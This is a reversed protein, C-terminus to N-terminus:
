KILDYFYHHTCIQSNGMVGPPSLFGESSSDQSRPSSFEGMRDGSRPSLFEGVKDVNPLQVGSKAKPTDVGQDVEGINEKNERSKTELGPTESEHGDESVLDIVDDKSATKKM